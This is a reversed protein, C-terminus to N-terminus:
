RWSCINDTPDNIDKGKSMIVYDYKGVVHGINNYWRISPHPMYFPSFPWRASRFDIWLDGDLNWDLFIAFGRGWPDNFAFEGGVEYLGGYGDPARKPDFFRIGKENKFEWTSGYNPLGMLCKIFQSSANWPPVPPPNTVTNASLAFTDYRWDDRAHLNGRIYWSPIRGYEMKYADIATALEKIQARCQIEKGKERIASMVPLAVVGLIVIIFITVLLEVLTFAQRSESLWCCRGPSYGRDAYQNSSTAQGSHGGSLTRRSGSKLTKQLATM